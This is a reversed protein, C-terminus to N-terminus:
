GVVWVEKYPYLITWAIYLVFFLIVHLTFLGRTQSSVVALRSLHFLLNQYLKYISTQFTEILDVVKYNLCVGFESPFFSIFPLFLFWFSAVRIWLRLYGIKPVRSPSYKSLQFPHAEDNANWHACSRGFRVTYAFTIGMKSFSDRFRFGVRVQFRSPNLRSVAVDTSETPWVQQFNQCINSRRKLKRKKKRERKKKKQNEM